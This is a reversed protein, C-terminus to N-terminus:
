ARGKLKAVRERLGAKDWVFWGIVAVAAAKMWFGSDTCKGAKVCELHEREKAVEANSRIVTTLVLAIAGVVIVAPWLWVFGTPTSTVQEGPLKGSVAIAALQPAANPNRNLDPSPLQAPEFVESLLQYLHVALPEEDIRRARALNLRAVAAPPASAGPTKLLANPVRDAQGAAVADNIGRYKLWLTLSRKMKALETRAKQAQQRTIPTTADTPVDIGTDAGMAYSTTGYIGSM